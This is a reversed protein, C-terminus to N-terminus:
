LCRYSGLDTNDLPVLSASKDLVNELRRKKKLIMKLDEIYDTKM